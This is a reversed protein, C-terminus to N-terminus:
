IPISIYEENGEFVSNDGTIYLFNNVNSHILNNLTEYSIVSIYRINFFYKCFLNNDYLHLLVNYYYVDTLYIVFQNNKYLEEIHIHQDQLKQFNDCSNYIYGVIKEGFESLIFNKYDQFLKNNFNKEM